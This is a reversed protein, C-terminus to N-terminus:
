QNYYSNAIVSVILSHPIGRERCFGRVSKGSVSYEEVLVQWRESPASLDSCRSFGEM